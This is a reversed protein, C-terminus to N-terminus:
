SLFILSKAAPEAYNPRGNSHQFADSSRKRGRVQDDNLSSNSSRHSAESSSDNKNSKKKKHKSKKEKKKQSDEEDKKKKKNKKEKKEKKEKKKREKTERQKDFFFAMPDEDDSQAKQAENLSLDDAYRAFPKDMELLDEQLKAERIETQKLRIKFITFLIFM